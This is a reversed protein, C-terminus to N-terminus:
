DEWPSLSVPFTGAETIAKSFPRVLERLRKCAAEGLHEWPPLALQDTRLEAAARRAQGEETLANDPTLWGRERLRQCADEWEADPWARSAQLARAPVEGTAAHTVLAECAGIGEAMLAACHGGFRFERLLTIAQWLALHPADSWPLKATAAFLPRGETPCASTAERALSAAEAVEPADLSDGLIHRLAADVAELRAASIQAPKVREWAEPIVSQVLAPHFNYFIAAMVEASVAGLPAGRSAFYGMRRGELGIREYASRAEPVFYIMAHYPELTRYMQRSIM